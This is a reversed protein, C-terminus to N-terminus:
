HQFSIVAAMLALTALLAVPMMAMMRGLYNPEDAAPDRANWPFVAKELELQEEHSKEDNSPMDPM